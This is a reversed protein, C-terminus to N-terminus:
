PTSSRSGSNTRLNQGVERNLREFVAIILALDSPALRGLEPPPKRYERLLARKLASGKATLAVLKVRRDRDSDTRRALGAAELRDIIFTANAPDCGWAEALSGIRRAERADLAWLARADNPTLGRRELARERDPSTAILYDFMLAWARGALIAKRQASRAM